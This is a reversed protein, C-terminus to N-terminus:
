EDSGGVGFDTNNMLIDVRDELRYKPYIYERFLAIVQQDPKISTSNETMVNICVRKFHQLGLTLDREMSAQTQGTTGFLLCVQEYYRAMEEPSDTDIGKCFVSERYAQDFTEIGGKVEVHIGAAAFAEKFPAIHHRDLWHCEVYLTHIGKHICIERLLATTESDLDSFSGSNIVELRHFQGTVQRLISANLEYNLSPDPHFDLHYDCFRCRRWKCGSGRLLVIERPNKECILSYRTLNNSDSM